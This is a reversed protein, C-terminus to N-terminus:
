DYRWRGNTICQESFRPTGHSRNARCVFCRDGGYAGNGNVWRDQQIRKQLTAKCARLEVTAPSVVAFKEPMTTFYVDEQKEFGGGPSSAVRCDPRRTSHSRRDGRGSFKGMAYERYDPCGRLRQVPVTEGEAAINRSSLLLFGESGGFVGALQVLRDERIEFCNEIVLVARPYVYLIRSVEDLLDEYAHLLWFVPRNLALRNCLNELVVTKGDCIDGLLLVVRTTGEFATSIEDVMSRHVHYDSRGLTEDRALQRQNLKGFIFLDEIEDVRPLGEEPAPRQYRRFNALKPEEPPADKLVRSIREALGLRGLYLPQGFREQTMRMDPDPQSTPRNVFFIKEKVGGVNFLVDNLHFDDASFGVFVVLEAREVDDRFVRLWGKIVDLRHYSEAGLICSQGFNEQNWKGVSGHLHIVSLSGTLEAPDDLNNISIHKRGASHLAHEIGNDYNTTYVREWPFRMVDVTDASIHQVDFRDILLSMLKAEGFSAKFADAANRIDRFSGTEGRHTLEDNLVNLLHLTTGITPDPNFNLCDATFGAGCFLVGNGNRARNLRTEFNTM